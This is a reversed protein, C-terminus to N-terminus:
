CRGAGGGPPVPASIGDSSQSPTNAGRVAGHRPPPMQPPHGLAGGRFREVAATDGVYTRSSGPRAPVASGPPAMRGKPSWWSPAVGPEGRAVGGQAPQGRHDLERRRRPDPAIAQLMTDHRTAMSAAAQTPGADLARGVAASAVAASSGKWLHLLSAPASRASASAQDEDPVPTRRRSEAVSAQVCSLLLAGRTRSIVAAIVSNCPIRLASAEHRTSGRGPSLPLARGPPNRSTLHM